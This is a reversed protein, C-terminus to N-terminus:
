SGTGNDTPEGPAQYLPEWPQSPDPPLQTSPQDGKTYYRAEFPLGDFSVRDGEHYVTTPSWAEFTGKGAALLQPKYSGSTTVPGILLWPSSMGTSNTGPAAGQTWFQAEYISGQWVVKYSAPYAATSRWEPYPTGGPDGGSSTTTTPIQVAPTTSTQAQATKTGPLKGFLKTFQLPQQLVGSCTNSLVGTSAFASGCQSDRNLSWISVRGIGQAKVFKSLGRADAITFRETEVDNVGIMVTVGVHQWAYISGSPLKAQQWLAEVQSHTAYLASKVTGLMNKSAGEGPGFDMAMANVGALKVHAHLMAKVVATGYATLGTNAVPLTLWVTLKPDKRQMAAVAEARRKNAAQNDMNAGEIDFDIQQSKYRDIVSEYAATLRKVSTCSVALETNAQGGFSVAASGGEARVQAIRSELNLKSAAQALTYYTGWTPTCPAKNGSVIFGLYASAVPNAQPSQFPYTPTLTVDVYPAYESRLHLTKASPDNGNSAFEYVGGAVCAFVLVMVM